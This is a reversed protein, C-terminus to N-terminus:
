IDEVDGRGVTMEERKGDLSMTLKLLAMYVDTDVVMQGKGVLRLWEGAKTPDKQMLADHRMKSTVVIYNKGNFSIRFMNDNEPVKIDFAKDVPM